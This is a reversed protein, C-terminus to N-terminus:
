EPEFLEAEGPDDYESDADDIPLFGVFLWWGGGLQICGLPGDPDIIRSDPLNILARARMEVDDPHKRLAAAWKASGPVNGTGGHRM